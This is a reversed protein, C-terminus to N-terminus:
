FLNIQERETEPPRKRRPEDEFYKREDPQLGRLREDRKPVVNEAELQNLRVYDDVVKFGRRGHAIRTFPRADSFSKKGIIKALSKTKNAGTVLLAIHGTISRVFRKYLERSSFKVHLHIHNFNNSSRILRVGYKTCNKRILLDIKAKNDRARLSLAGKAISSKLILHMSEKTSVPRATRFRRKRSLSGGFENKAKFTEDSFRSQGSRSKMSPFTGFTRDAILYKSNIDRLKRRSIGDSM